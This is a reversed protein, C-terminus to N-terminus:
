DLRSQSLPATKADPAGATPSAEGATGSIAGAVLPAEDASLPIAAAGAPVAGVTGPIEGAAAPIAGASSNRGWVLPLMEIKEKEALVKYIAILRDRMEQLKEPSVTELCAIFTKVETILLKRLVTASLQELPKEMPIVSNFLILIQEHQARLRGAM